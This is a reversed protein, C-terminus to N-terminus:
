VKGKLKYVYALIEAVAKFLDETIPMGVELQHYLARALPKKEVIMVDNKKAVERIKLALYDAGKAVVFPAAMKGDEYKLAVAFHTPNTIVVDAKPLEQMMRRMAMQRQREKIKSKILPDGETKKYEDKIDQKSMRLNKEHDYKQYLFDLIALFILFISAALGMQITIKGVLKLAAYLSKDGMKFLQTRHMWIVFFTIFGITSIKLISKIMEVLARISYIRKFGKLPNVRDLKFQIAEPSFLFGIQMMHSAVGIVLAAIFVPIVILVAQKVLHGFLEQINKENIATNLKQGLFGEMLHSLETGMRGAAFIFVLFLVFLSFATSLDSSKAVQGKKRSDEKKRPTPKETKEGAFFQLDLKLFAM